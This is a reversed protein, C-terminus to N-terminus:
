REFELRKGRFSIDVRGGSYVVAGNIITHTVAHTFTEGEFPSWGCKYLINEPKVRWDQGPRVIIIDAYLGEDLFGREKVRFRVAPAHCMKEVVQEPTFTGQRCMELMAVLSHQV